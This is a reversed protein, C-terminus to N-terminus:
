PSCPTHLHTCPPTRASSRRSARAKLRGIEAEGEGDDDGETSEEFGEVLQGIRNSIKSLARARQAETMVGDEGFQEEDDSAAAADAGPQMAALSAASAAVVADAAQGSLATAPPGALTSSPLSAFGAGTQALTVAVAPAPAPAASAAASKPRPALSPASASGPRARRKSELVTASFLSPSAM